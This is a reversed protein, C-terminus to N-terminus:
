QRGATHRRQHHHHRLLHERRHTDAHQFGNQHSDGVHFGVSGQVTVRESFCEVFHEIGIELRAGDDLSTVLSVVCNLPFYVARIREGSTGLVQALVLEVQDCSALVRLRSRDPLAEILRNRLTAQKLAPM